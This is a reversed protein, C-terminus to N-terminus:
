CGNYLLARPGGTVCENREVDVDRRRNEFQGADLGIRRVFHLAYGGRLQQGALPRRVCSDTEAINDDLLVTM